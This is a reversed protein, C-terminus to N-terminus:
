KSQCHQCINGMGIFGKCQISNFHSSLSHFMLLQYNFGKGSNDLGSVAGVCADEVDVWVSDAVVESTGAWPLMYFAVVRFSPMMEKTVTLLINTMDQGGVELRKAVIIKGKNLVQLLLKLCVENQESFIEKPSLCLYM